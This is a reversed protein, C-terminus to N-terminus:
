DKTIVKKNETDISTIEVGLKLEIALEEYVMPDILLIDRENMGDLMYEKSLPPRDYPMEPARDFLIIRGQYGEKRLIHAANTGAVGGGVIIISRHDSMIIAEKKM